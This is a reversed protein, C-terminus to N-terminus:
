SLSSLSHINSHHLIFGNSKCTIVVSKQRNETLSNYVQQLTHLDKEAAACLMTYKIANANYLGYKHERDYYQYMELVLKTCKMRYLYSITTSLEQENCGISIFVGPLLFVNQAILNKTESVLQVKVANGPVVLPRRYDCRNILSLYKHVINLEDSSRNTFLFSWDCRPPLILQKEKKTGLASSSM